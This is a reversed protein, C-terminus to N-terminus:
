KKLTVFEKLDSNLINEIESYNSSHTETFMFGFVPYENWNIKRMEIPKKFNALVADYDFHTIDSVKYGTSNDLVMLCYNLNAKDKLLTDWDPKKQEFYYEYPNLGYALTTLDATTCWGGFRMPNIEIPMIENHENVRVEVHMPFNKLQTREGIQVCFETFPKLYKEIINKSSYYVRDSVDSSSSFLHKLIGLVIPEGESNFYVDFAFEEGEIMQEVIFTNSNMVEQPYLNQTQAIENKIQQPITKWDDNSFVTYVGMSFFGVSPKIIFPKPIDSIDLSEIKSFDVKQYFFDPYMDKVLNRFQVKDKFLHIKEPLKTKGLNTVIWNIANESNSYILPYYQENFEAVANAESILGTNNHLEISQIFTTNLVPINKQAITEKLLESVYPKDLIIM